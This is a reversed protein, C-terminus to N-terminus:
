DFVSDSTQIDKTTEKDVTKEYMLDPFASQIAERETRGTFTFVDGREDHVELTVLAGPAYAYLAFGLNPYKTRLEDLTM